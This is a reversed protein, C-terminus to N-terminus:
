KVSSGSQDKGKSIASEIRYWVYALSGSGFIFTVAILIARDLTGAFIGSRFNVWNGMREIRFKWTDFVSIFDFGDHSCTYSVGM